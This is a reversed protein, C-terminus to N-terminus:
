LEPTMNENEAKSENGVYVVATDVWKRQLDVFFPVSCMILGQCLMLNSETSMNDM